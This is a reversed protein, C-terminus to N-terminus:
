LRGNSMIDENRLWSDLKRRLNKQDDVTCDLVLNQFRADVAGRSEALCTNYYIQLQQWCKEPQDNFECKLKDLIDNIKSLAEEQTENRVTNVEITASKSRKRLRDLNALFQQRDGESLSCKLSEEKLQQLVTLLSAKEQMLYVAQTRFSEVRKEAEDLFTLLRASDDEDERELSAAM